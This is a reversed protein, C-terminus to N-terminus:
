SQTYEHISVKEIAVGHDLDFVRDNPGEKQLLDQSQLDLVYLYYNTTAEPIIHIFAIAM